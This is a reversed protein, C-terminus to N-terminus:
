ADGGQKRHAALAARLSKQHPDLRDMLRQDAEDWEPAPSGCCESGARGCCVPYASNYAESLISEIEELAAEAAEVLDTVDPAPQQYVPGPIQGVPHTGCHKAGCGQCQTEHECTCIVCGCPQYKSLAPQPPKAFVPITRSIQGEDSKAIHDLSWKGDLFDQSVYGVPKQTSAALAVPEGQVAPATSAALMRLIKSATVQRQAPDPCCLARECEVLLSRVGEPEGQGAPAVMKRADAIHDPAAALVNQNNM